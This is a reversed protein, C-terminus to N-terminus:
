PNCLCIQSICLFMFNMAGGNIICKGVMNNVVEVFTVYINDCTTTDLIALINFLGEQLSQWKKFNDAIGFNRKCNENGSVFEQAIDAIFVWDTKWKHGNLVALNSFREDGM